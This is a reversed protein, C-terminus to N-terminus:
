RGPLKARCPPETPQFYSVCRRVQQPIGVVLYLDFLPNSEKDLEMLNQQSIYSGCNGSVSYRRRRKPTTPFDLLNKEIPISLILVDM